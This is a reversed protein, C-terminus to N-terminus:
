SSMTSKITYCVRLFLFINPKICVIFDHLKLLVAREPVPLLWPKVQHEELLVAGYFVSQVFNKVMQLDANPGVKIMM